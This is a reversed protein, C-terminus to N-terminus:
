RDADAMGVSRAGKAVDRGEQSAPQRKTGHDPNACGEDHSRDKREQRKEALRFCDNGGQRGVPGQDREEENGERHQGDEFGGELRNATRPEACDERKHGDDDVDREIIGQDPAYAGQGHQAQGARSQGCQDRFGQRKQGSPCPPFNRGRLAAQPQAALDIHRLDLDCGNFARWEARHIGDFGGGDADCREHDAAEARYGKCAILDGLGDARQEIHQRQAHGSGDGDPDRLLTARPIDTREARNGIGGERQCQYPQGSRCYQEHETALGHGTQNGIVRFHDGYGGEDKQGKGGHLDAIPHM